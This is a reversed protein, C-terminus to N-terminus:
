NIQQFKNDSKDSISCNNGCGAVPSYLLQANGITGVYYQKSLTYLVLTLTYLSGTLTIAEDCM